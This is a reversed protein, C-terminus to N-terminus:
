AAEARPRTKPKGKAKPKGPKGTYAKLRPLRPAKSLLYGLLGEWGTRHCVLCVLRSGRPIHGGCPCDLVARGDPLHHLVRGTYTDLPRCGGVPVLDPIGLEREDRSTM